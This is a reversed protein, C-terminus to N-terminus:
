SHRAPRPPHLVSATATDAPLFTELHLGALTTDNATELRAAMSFFRLTPAGPEADGAPALDVTLVPGTPVAVAPPLPGVYSTMEEALEHLRPDGLQRPSLNANIQLEAGHERRLEAFERTATRLMFGGVENILDSEEALPIFEAPSVAGHEPHTWRLLSSPTRLQAEVNLAQFGYVPDMSPPAYLQAFDASSFGGNRDPSWQMPTRVGDRDGLFINDGMGIEDGYYLVPTGPMTLLGDVERKDIGSDELALRFAQAALSLPTEDPLKGQRTAGVGVIPARRWAM